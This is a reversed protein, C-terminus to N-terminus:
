EGAVIEHSWVLNGIRKINGVRIDKKLYNITRGRMESDHTYGDEAVWHYISKDICSIFFKYSTTTNEFVDDVCVDPRKIEILKNEKIEYNVGLKGVIDFHLDDPLTDMYVVLAGEKLLSPFDEDTKTIRLVFGEEPKTRKQLKM